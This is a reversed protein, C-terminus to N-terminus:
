ATVFLCARDPPLLADRTDTGLDKVAKRPRPWLEVNGGQWFPMQWPGYEPTVFYLSCRQQLKLFIICLKTTGPLRSPLLARSAHCGSCGLRWFITHEFKSRMNVNNLAFSCTGCHLTLQAQRFYDGPYHHPTPAVLLPCLSGGLLYRASGLM